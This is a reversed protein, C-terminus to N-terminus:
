VFETLLFAVALCYPLLLRAPIGVSASYGRGGRASPLYCSDFDSVTVVLIWALKRFNKKTDRYELLIHLTVDILFIIWVTKYLLHIKTVEHASLTFGHEYIVGVILMISALYTIIAMLRLLLRVYPQLLKNQYLFFKHYIKM